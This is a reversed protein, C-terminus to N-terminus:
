SGDNLFGSEISVTSLYVGTLFDSKGVLNSPQIRLFTRNKGSLTYNVAVPKKPTRENLNLLLSGHVGLDDRMM